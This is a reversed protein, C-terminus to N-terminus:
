HKTNGQVFDIIQGLVICAKNLASLGSKDAPIEAGPEVGDLKLLLLRVASLISFLFTVLMLVSAQFGGHAAIWTMMGNAPAAAVAVPAVLVTAQSLSVLSWCVIFGVLSLFLKM